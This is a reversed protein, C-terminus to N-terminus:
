FFIVTPTICGTLCIVANLFLSCYQSVSRTAATHVFSSLSSSNVCGGLSESVLSIKKLELAREKHDLRLEAIESSAAVVLGRGFYLYIVIM